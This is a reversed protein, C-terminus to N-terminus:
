SGSLNIGSPFMKVSYAQDGGGSCILRPFRARAQDRSQLFTLGNPMEGRFAKHEQYGESFLFISSVSIKAGSLLFCIGSDPYNLYVSDGLTKNKEVPGLKQCFETLVSDNQDRGLLQNLESM